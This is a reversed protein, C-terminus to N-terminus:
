CGSGAGSAGINSTYLNYARGPAPQYYIGILPVSVFENPSSVSVAALVKGDTDELYGTFCEVSPGAALVYAHVTGASDVVLGTYAYNGSAPDGITGDIILVSQGQQM